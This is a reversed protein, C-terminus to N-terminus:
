FFHDSLLRSTLFLDILCILTLIPALKSIDEALWKPRYRSIRGTSCNVIVKFACFFHKQKREDGKQSRIESRFKDKKVKKKELADSEKKPWMRRACQCDKEIEKFQNYVLLKSQSAQRENRIEMMKNKKKKKNVHVALQVRDRLKCKAQNHGVIRFSSIVSLTRGVNWMM